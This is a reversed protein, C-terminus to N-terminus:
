QFYESLFSSHIMFDMVFIDISTANVTANLKQIGASAASAAAHFVTALITIAISPANNYPLLKLLVTHIESPYESYFRFAKKHKILQKKQSLRNKAPQTISYVNDWIFPTIKM